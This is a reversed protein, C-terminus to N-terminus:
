PKASWRQRGAELADKGHEILADRSLWGEVLWLLGRGDRHITQGRMLDERHRPQMNPGSKTDPTPAKSLDRHMVHGTLHQGAQNGIPGLLANNREAARRQPVWPSRGPETLYLDVDVVKNLSPLELKLREERAGSSDDPMRPQPGLKNLSWFPFRLRLAHSVGRRVPVGEFKVPLDFGDVPAVRDQGIREDKQGRLYDVRMHAQGWDDGRPGHLSVKWLAREPNLYFSSGDAIMQWPMSRVSWDESAVVIRTQIKGTRSM